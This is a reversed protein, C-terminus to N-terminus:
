RSRLFLILKINICCHAMHRIVHGPHLADAVFVLFDVLEQVVFIEVRLFLMSLDFPVVIDTDAIRVHHALVFFIM